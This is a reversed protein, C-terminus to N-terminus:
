HKDLANAADAGQSRLIITVFLWVLEFWEFKCGCSPLCFIGMHIQM